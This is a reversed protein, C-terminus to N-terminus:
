KKNEKIEMLKVYIQAANKLFNEYYHTPRAGKVATLKLDEYARVMDHWEQICGSEVRCYSGPNFPCRSSHLYHKCLGCYDERLYELPLNKVGVLTLQLLGLYKKISINLAGIETRAARKVQKQTLKKM